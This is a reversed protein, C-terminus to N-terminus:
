RCNSVPRSRGRSSIPSDVRTPPRSSPSTLPLALADSPPRVVLTKSPTLMHRAMMDYYLDDRGIKREVKLALEAVQVSFDEELSKILVQPSENGHLYGALKEVGEEVSGM